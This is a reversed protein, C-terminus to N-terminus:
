GTTDANPAIAKWCGTCTTKAGPSVVRAKTTSCSPVIAITESMLLGTLCTISSREAFTFGGWFSVPCPISEM